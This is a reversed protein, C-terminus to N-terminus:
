QEINIKDANMVRGVPYVRYNQDYYPTRRYFFNLRERPSGAFTSDEELLREFEARLDPDEELMDRAMPEMVYDEFYEKREFISSFFGWRVFSDYADPELLEAIVKNTRQNCLIVASGAPYERLENVRELDFDVTFHSEYPSDAWDINSFKYSEVGIVQDASLRGVEVGHLELIRIQELFQPPIIYAEPITVSEAPDAKRFIRIDFDVPKKNWRVWKDGSIDSDIVESEFGMLKFPESQERDLKYLITYEGGALTESVVRDGDRSSAILEDGHKAFIELSNAILRYTALVRTKYEKLSHAEVLLFPRNQVAGYGHSFRPPALWSFYGKSPDSRDRLGGYPLIPYGDSVMMRNLEPLYGNNIFARVPEVMNQRNAIAYAISYRHDLGDTTHIDMMFDPLWKTFLGLWARMEPADAKLFDRNLNLNQATTRWGMERPGLQNMRNYPGFREHGDVSFIPIFLLVVDRVIDRYNGHVAVDRLFMLGADKGVCEGAHICAEILIVPREREDLAVPEFEGRADVILLPLKRGQPSIGFDTFKIIDSEGALRRCFEVTQEYRPTEMFGTKECYTLWDDAGCYVSANLALVLFVSIVICRKM